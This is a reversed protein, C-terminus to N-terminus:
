YSGPVQPVSSMMWFSQDVALVLTPMATHGELQQYSFSTFIPIWTHLLHQLLASHFIDDQM